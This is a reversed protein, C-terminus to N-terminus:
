EISYYVRGSVAIAWSPQADNSREAASARATGNCRALVSRQARACFDFHRNTQKTSRLFCCWWRGSERKAKFGRKLRYLLSARNTMCETQQSVTCVLVRQRGVVARTRVTTPPLATGGGAPQVAPMSLFCFAGWMAKRRRSWFSCGALM